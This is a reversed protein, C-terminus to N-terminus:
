SSTPRGSRARGARAGAAAAAATPPPPPPPPAALPPVPPAAAAAAAAADPPPGGSAAPAPPALAVAAAARAASASPQLSSSRSPASRKPRSRRRRAATRMSREERGASMASSRPGPAGTDSRSTTAACCARSACTRPAARPHPSHTHRQLGGGVGGRGVQEWAARRGRTRNRAARGRSTYTHLDARTHHSHPTCTAHAASRPAGTRLHAPADARQAHAAARQREGREPGRGRLEHGHRREHTCAGAGSHAAWEAFAYAYGGRARAYTSATRAGGLPATSESAELAAMVSHGSNWPPAAAPRRTAGDGAAAVRAHTHACRGSSGDAACPPMSSANPSLPARGRPSKCERTYPSPPPM